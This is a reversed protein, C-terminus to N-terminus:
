REKSGERPFGERADGRGGLGSIGCASVESGNTPHTCGVAVRTRGTPQVWGVIVGDNGHSTYCAPSGAGPTCALALGIELLGGFYLPLVMIDFDPCPSGPM